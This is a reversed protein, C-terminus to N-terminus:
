LTCSLLSLTSGPKAQPIVSVEYPLHCSFQAKFISHLNSLWALINCNWYPVVKQGATMWGVMLAQVRVCVTRGEWEKVEGTLNVSPFSFSSILSM